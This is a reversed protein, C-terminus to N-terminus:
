NINKFWYFIGLLILTFNLIAISHTFLYTDFNKKVKSMVHLIVSESKEM